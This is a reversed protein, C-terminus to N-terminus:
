AIGTASPLMARRPARRPYNSLRKATDTVADQGAERVIAVMEEESFRSRRM